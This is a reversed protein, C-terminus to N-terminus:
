EIAVGLSFGLLMLLVLTAAVARAALAQARPIDAATAVRGATAPKEQWQGHYSAGGGLRLELAGAGAAIVPGANPSAWHGACSRWQQLAEPRNGFLTFAAATIRAPIFNLLDDLRAAAWGFARYRRNRYGWMADLTNSLRYVLVGPLGAVAFWFLPAVVADSTNELLSEIAARATQEEDLNDCDRSVIRGVATRAGALDERELTRAVPAIHENLAKWGVAFYVSGAGLILAWPGQAQQAREWLLSGVLWVPVLLLAVALIGYVKPYKADTCNLKRELGSALRGFGVLPHFQRPEGLLRDLLMGLLLAAAIVM